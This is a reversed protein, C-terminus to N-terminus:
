VNIWLPTEIATTDGLYHREIGSVKLFDKIVIKHIQWLVQWFKDISDKGCDGRFVDWRDYKAQYVELSEQNLKDWLGTYTKGDKGLGVDISHGTAKYKHLKLHEDEPKYRLWGDM